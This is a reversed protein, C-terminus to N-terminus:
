TSLRRGQQDTSLGEWVLATHHAGPQRWATHRPQRQAAQKRDAGPAAGGGLQVAGQLLSHLLEDAGCAIKLIHLRAGLLLRRAHLPWMQIAKRMVSHVSPQQADRFLEDAEPLQKMLPMIMLLRM